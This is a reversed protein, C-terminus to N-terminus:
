KKLDIEESKPIAGLMKQLVPEAAIARGARRAVRPPRCCVCLLAALSRLRLSFMFLSLLRSDRTKRPPPITGNRVQATLWLNTPSGLPAVCAAAVAPGFPKSSLGFTKNGAGRESGDRPPASVRVFVPSCALFGLRLSCM